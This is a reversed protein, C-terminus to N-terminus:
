WEAAKALSLAYSPWFTGANLGGNCTGDSETPPKIWLYADILTNSTITTPITGLARGPANCWEYNAAAGNGNRGTDVIFHKNGVLVSVTKGYSINEATTFFNSINTAFGDAKAIGAKQLRSAMTAADIWYPNGADIYVSVNGQAKFTTVAFQILNLRETQNALSLCGMNALADPELVVAAKGAGISKSFTQIWSKYASESAAGGASYSGCDRHPINYAVFVPLSNAAVAAAMAASVDSGINANWDGFWQAVPQDAIKKMIAANEPDIAVHASAWQKAQSSPNVYLATGALPNLSIPTVKTVVPAVQAPQAITITVAKQSVINNSLDTAIFNIVYPGSKKWNWGTLNVLSEKHPNYKGLYDYYSNPMWNWQGGDVQWYMYYNEVAVNDLAVQFPVTGSVNVTATPWWINITGSYAEAVNLPLQLPSVAMSFVALLFVAWRLSKHM